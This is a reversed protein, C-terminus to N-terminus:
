ELMWADARAMSAIEDASFALEPDVAEMTAIVEEVTMKGALVLAPAIRFPIEEGDDRLWTGLPSLQCLKVKGAMIDRFFMKIAERGNPASYNGGWDGAAVRISAWGTPAPSGPPADKSKNTM